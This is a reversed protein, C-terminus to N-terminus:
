KKIKQENQKAIKYANSYYKVKEWIKILEEDGRANNAENIAIKLKEYLVISSTDNLIHTHKSDIHPNGNCLM